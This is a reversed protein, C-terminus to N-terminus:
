LSDLRFSPEYSPEITVRGVPLVARAGPLSIAYRSLLQALVMEAELLAFWLGICIRPGAGFPVFAPTQTWPATKGAFRDPLFATPQDWFRRHRHMVWSSIWVQTDAGIKEGCIEDPGNAVRVIQPVPPYLRLAELFVNRLRRWNQLDDPGGIREPRFATVEERVRTQEESDM